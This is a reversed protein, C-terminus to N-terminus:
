PRPAKDARTTDKGSPTPSTDLRGVLSEGSVNARGKRASGRLESAPTGSANRARRARGRLRPRLRGELRRGPRHVRLGEDRQVVERNREAHAQRKAAILIADQRGTGSDLALATERENGTRRLVPGGDRQRSGGATRSHWRGADTTRDTREQKVSGTCGPLSTFLGRVDSEERKRRPTCPRAEPHAASATLAGRAERTRSNSASGTALHATRESTTTSKRFRAAGRRSCRPSVGRARWPHSSEGHSSPSGDAGAPPGTARSARSAPAQPSFYGAIM